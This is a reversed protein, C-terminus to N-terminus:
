LPDLAVLGQLAKPPSPVPAQLRPFIWYALAHLALVYILQQLLVLGLAMLQVQDLDPALTIRLPLQLTTLLSNLTGILGNLMNDGARTIVVWLNEGVLLSLAVVRVLFGATGILTGVGWSLWWSLRRLWCWGLWLSLWGYPFLILPGRVPGMLAVLLLVALVVGEVGAKWGRRLLLLALPLPLALRFLSGGVPLYYLALWLLGATAALYSTEMVRLAQRRSM